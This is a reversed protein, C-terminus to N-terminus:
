APADGDEEPREMFKGSTTALIEGDQILRAQLVYLPPHSKELWARVRAPRDVAVPSLFRTSLEATVAVIGRAFLCNTMAGDLLSSIVGGHLWCPYGHFAKACAFLATVSGDICAHFELGFGRSNHPDCVFCCDHERGRVVDLREQYQNSIV